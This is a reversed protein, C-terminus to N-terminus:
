GCSSSRVITLDNRCNTIFSGDMAILEMLDSPQREDENKEFTNKAVSSRGAIM